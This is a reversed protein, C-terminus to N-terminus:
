LRQVNIVWFKTSELSSKKLLQWKFHLFREKSGIAVWDAVIGRLCHQMPKSSDM